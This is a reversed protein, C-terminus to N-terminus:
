IGTGRRSSRKRPFRRGPDYGMMLFSGIILNM